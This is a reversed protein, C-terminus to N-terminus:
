LFTERLNCWISVRVRKSFEETCAQSCFKKRGEQTDRVYKNSAAETILGSCYDCVKTQRSQYNDVCTQSCFNLDGIALMSVTDVPLSCETCYNSKKM